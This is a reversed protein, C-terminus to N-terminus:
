QPPPPQYKHGITTIFPGFYQTKRELFIQGVGGNGALRLRLQGVGAVVPGDEVHRGEDLALHDRSEALVYHM